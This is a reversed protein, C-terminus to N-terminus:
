ISNKDVYVIEEQENKRKNEAFKFVDIFFYVQAYYKKIIYRFYAIMEGM